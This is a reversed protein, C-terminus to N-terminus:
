RALVLGPEFPGHLPDARDDASTPGVLGGAVPAVGVRPSQREEDDRVPRLLLRLAVVEDEDVPDLLRHSPRGLGGVALVDAHHAAGVHDTLRQRGTQQVLQRDDHRRDHEAAALSEEVAERVGELELM